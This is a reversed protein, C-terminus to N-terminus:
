LWYVRPPKSELIVEHEPNELFKRLEARAKTRHPKQSFMNHFWSPGKWNTVSFKVDSHLRALRKKGVKSNPNARGLAWKDLYTEKIRRTRSM